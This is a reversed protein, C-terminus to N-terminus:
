NTANKAKRGVQLKTKHTDSLTRKKKKKPIVNFNYEKLSFHFTSYDDSLVESPPKVKRLKTLLTPHNTGIILEDNTWHLVTEKDINGKPPFLMTESRKKDTTNKRPRAM